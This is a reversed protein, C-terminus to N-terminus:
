KAQQRLEKIKEPDPITFMVIDKNVFHAGAEGVVMAERGYVNRFNGQLGVERTEGYVGFLEGARPRGFSTGNMRAVLLYEGPTLKLLYKGSSDVPRSVFRPKLDDFARKAMVMAGPVPEGRETSILGQVTFLQGDDGSRDTASIAITGFDIKEGPGVAYRIGGAEGDAALYFRDSASFTGGYALGSDLVAGIFFLGPSLEVRFRGEGNLKAVADPVRNVGRTDPACSQDARFLALWGSQLPTGAVTVVGGVEAPLEAADAANGALLLLSLIVLSLAPCVKGIYSDSIM